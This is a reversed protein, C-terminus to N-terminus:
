KLTGKLYYIWNISSLEPDTCYVILKGTVAGANIGSEDKFGNMDQFKVMINATQKSNIVNSASSTAFLVTPDVIYKFTKVDLFVNKFPITLPHDPMLIFPGKPKPIIGNGTIEYITEPNLTSSVIFKAHVTEINCPEYIVEIMNGDRAPISIKNLGCTFSPNDVTITFEDVNKSNNKIIINFTKSSGLAATIQPLTYFLKEPMIALLKLKYPFIGLKQSKINLVTESESAISPSYHIIITEKSEPAISKPLGEIKIDPHQCTGSYIITENKLPNEIKLLYDLSEQTNTTLEITEISKPKIIKYQLKYFQYEGEPNTFIIHFNLLSGKYCCLFAHYDRLDKSLIEIKDNGDFTYIPKEKYNGILKISCVFHQPKNLWNYIPLIEHYKIKAPIERSIEGIAEPPLSIGRLAYITLSNKRVFKIVVTGEHPNIKTNMVLPAYTIACQTSSNADIFIINESQFYNGNVIIEIKEDANLDNKLNINKTQKSRVPISFVITDIPDPLKSCGGSFLITITQYNEIEISAEGKLKISEKTPHFYVNFTVNTGASLYGKLPKLTFHPGLKKVNWKFYADIDGSNNLILKDEISYGIAVTDFRLDTRNVYFEAAICRGRILLLPIITSDACFGGIKEDFFNMRKKPSFKIIIEQIKNPRLTLFESPEFNICDEFIVPINMSNSHSKIKEILGIQLKVSAKGFNIITFKRKVIKGISVNGFDIVKDQPKLLGVKYLIGEGKLQIEQDITSNIIFNLSEHYKKMEHPHFNIPISITSRESIAQSLKELNVSFHQPVKNCEVIVFTNENNTIRLEVSYQSSGSNENIYCAGFNYEIFNFKIPECKATANILLKYSPGNIIKLTIPYNKLELKKMATMELFSIIKSNNDVMGNTEKIEIKYNLKNNQFKTSIGSNWEYKFAIDGINIIEFKFITLKKLMLKGLQIINVKDAQIDIQENMPNTFIVRSNIKYVNAIILCKLPEKMKEIECQVLFSFHGIQSPKFDVLFEQDNESSLIGSMPKIHINQLRGESYVSNKNIKFSLPFKENNRITMTDQVKAGLSTLAMTVKPTCCIVRPESVIGVLLFPVELNYEHIFFSWLAEFVGVDRALFTFTIKTKEESHAIAEPIKCHFYPINNTNQSTKDIWSFHYSETTPNILDFHKIHNKRVGIVKFEVVKINEPVTPGSRTLLYDSKKIDFHYYPVVSSGNLYVVLSPVEPHLNKINCFLKARYFVANHPLFRVTFQKSHNSLLTGCTPEIEFSPEYKKNNMIEVSANTSYIMSELNEHRTYSENAEHILSNISCQISNNVPSASHYISSEVLEWSYILNVMGTNKLIFKQERIEYIFTDEFNIEDTSCAYISHSASAMLLIQIVRAPGVNEYRPEEITHVIKEMFIYESYEDDKNENSASFKIWDVRSHQDDWAVGEPKEMINIEFITCDLPVQDLLVPINSIFSVIIDKDDLPYIHGVSPIIILNSHTNWQFRFLKDKSKNAIKFTIKKEENLYCDGINLIYILNTFPNLLAENNTLIPVSASRNKQGLTGQMENENSIQQSHISEADKATEDHDNTSELLPLGILIVPEIFGEGNLNIMLSEYPNEAILLRVHAEYKGNNKPTFLLLLQTVDGPKSMTEICHRDIMKKTNSVDDISKLEYLCETDEIIETTITTRIKGINKFCINKISTKGVFCKGYELIAHGRKCFIEPEILIIEAVCGEGILNISLKDTEIHSPVDVTAELLGFYKELLTPAFSISLEETSLPLIHLNLKNLTFVHSQSNKQHLEDTQLFLLLDAPVLSPNNFRLKVTHITSVIVGEFHLDMAEKTFITFPTIESPCKFDKLCNVIHSDQFIFNLNNFDIKPIYSDMSFKLIRGNKDTISSNDVFILISDELHGEAEPYCDIIFEALQNVDLTGEHSQNLTFPGFRLFLRAIKPTSKKKRPSKRSKRSEKDDLLVNKNELQQTQIPSTQSNNKQKSTIEYQIPFIGTNKMYFSIQKHTFIRIPGILVEPYPEIEFRSYEARITVTLPIEAVVTPTKNTELLKCKFLPMEKLNMELKPIFTINIATTKNIKLLGFSRDVHFDEKLNKLLNRNIDCINEVNMLEIAFNIDHQGRNKITFSAKLNIGIKGNPFIIPNANNIDVTVDCTNGSVTISEILLPNGDIEDLFIGINILQEIPGVSQGHYCIEIDSESFAKVWDSYRSLTVQSDEFIKSLNKWFIPIASKNILKVIENVKRYLLVRGFSLNKRTLTVDLECGFCALTFEEIRPNNKITMLLRDTNIGYELAVATVQISGLENPKILLVQPTLNFAAYNSNALSFEVNVDVLSPNFFNLRSIIKQIKREDNNSKNTLLYGFDFTNENIFFVPRHLENKKTQKVNPFIMTPDMQLHPIDANGAVNIQYIKTNDGVINLLFKDTFSGVCTPKFAIQFTKIEKPQLIVRPQPLKEIYKKLRSLDPPNENLDSNELLEFPSKERSQYEYRQNNATIISYLQPEIVPEFTNNDNLLQKIMRNEMLQGIVMDYIESDWPNSFKVHWIHFRNNIIAEISKLSTKYINFAETLKELKESEFKIQKKNLIKPSEHKENSNNVKKIKENLEVAPDLKEIEYKKIFKTRREQAEHIRPRLVKEIFLCKENDPLLEFDSSSMEDMLELKMALEEEQKLIIKNQTETYKQKYLDLSNHFTVFAMFDARDIIRFISSFTTIDNKIFNNNLTQLVFGKRYQNSNFIEQLTIELFNLDIGLFTEEGRTIKKSTKLNKGVKKKMSKNKVTTAPSVAVSKTIINQLLRIGEIKYEYRCLSEMSNIEDISPFNKFCIIPDDPEPLNFYINKKFRQLESDDSGLSSPSKLSKKLPILPEFDNIFKKAIQLLEQYKNDIIERLQISNSSDGLAINEIIVRDLNVLSLNLLKAIRCATEQYQTFPAGHFFICVKKKLVNNENIINNHKAAFEDFIEKLPDNRLKLFEPIEHLKDIYSHLLDEIENPNKSKLSTLGDFLKYNLNDSYEEFSESKINTNSNNEHFESLNNEVIEEDIDSKLNLDAASVDNLQELQSKVTYESYQNSIIDESAIMEDILSYYFEYFAWPIRFGVDLSPLLIENVRYYHLLVRMIHNEEISVHDLHNWYFEIPCNINNKVNFKHVQAMSHPSMPSFNIALKDIKLKKVIGRGYLFIKKLEIAGDVIINLENEYDCSKEPRFYIDIMKSEGPLLSDQYNDLYFYLQSKKEDNPFQMIWQCKILGDNRIFLRLLKCNGVTVHGFNLTNNSLMLWPSTVNAIITIPITCGNIVEIYIIRKILKSRELFKKKLPHINIDLKFFEEPMLNVRNRLKVTIGYKTLYNEKENKRLRMSIKCSSYNFIMVSRNTCQEVIVHGLNLEYSPSCLLPIPMPNKSSIHISTLTECKSIHQVALYQEIIMDIDMIRPMSDDCNSIIEWGNNMLREFENKNEILSLDNNEHTNLLLKEAINLTNIANYEDEILYNKTSLIRPLSLYIQPLVAWGKITIVVPELNAIILNFSEDFQGPIRSQYNLELQAVAGSDISGEMPQISLVGKSNLRRESFINIKYNFEIGCINKIEVFDRHVEFIIQHGFHIQAKDLLYKINDARATINIYESPGHFINCILQANVCISEQAHFSISIEKTSHPSIIGNMPSIEFVQYLKEETFGSNTKLSETDNEVNNDDNMLKLSETSRQLTAPSSIKSIDRVSIGQTEWSFNYKVSMPGNNNLVLTKNCTDNTSVDFRLKEPISIINPYNMAAKCKIEDENPHEDYKFRLYDIYNKSHFNESDKINPTFCVRIRSIFNHKLNVIVNNVHEDNETIIKFPYQISLHIILNMQSINKVELEDIIKKDVSHESHTEMNIYFNMERKNFKVAPEIFTASINSMGILERKACGQSVCYVWWQESINDCKDSQVLWKIEKTTRPLLEIAHSEVKFTTMRPMQPISRSNRKTISNSFIIKQLRNGENILNLPVFNNQHSLLQGMQFDPFINPHIKICSGLGHASLIVSVTSGNAITILIEDFQEGADRLFLKVNIKMPKLPNIEGSITSISWSSNKNAIYANFNAPIPSDNILELSMFKEQLLEVDGFDLHKPAISIVPGHGNFVVTFTEFESKGFTRMYKMEIEQQGIVRTIITVSADCSQGPNLHWQNKSMSYFTMTNNSEKISLSTNAALTTNNPSIFFERPNSPFIPPASINNITNIFTKYAVAPEDGDDPICISFTVPVSSMNRISVEHKSTFGLAVTGLDLQSQDFHLTPCVVNGTEANDQNLFEVTEIFEGNKTSSFSLNFSSYEGSPIELIQPSISIKGGFDCSKEKPIIIGPILGENTCIIEFNQISSLYIKGIDIATTNLKLIPGKGIGFFKITLRTKCGTVQLYAESLIEGIKDPHFTVTIEMFSKPWIEGGMPSLIFKSDNYFFKETALSNVEDTRVRKYISDHYIPSDFLSTCELDNHHMITLDEIAGYIEIFKVFKNKEENDLTTNEHKMWHFKVIHDSNNYIKLSKVSSLGIFTDGMHLADTELHVSCNIANGHVNMKLLEGTECKFYIISTFSGTSSALFDIIFKQSEGQKILGCSPEILFHSSSSFVDFIATSDGSNRILISRSSSSNVPTEPMIINDPFELIARPGLVIIPITVTGFDGFLDIKHEYDQKEHPNFQLNYVHSMGPALRINLTTGKIDVCFTENHQCILKVFQSIKSTNSILLTTTYCNGPTFQQFIIEKPVVNLPFSNVVSTDLPQNINRIPITLLELRKYTSLLIQKKYESPYLAVINKTENDDGQGNRKREHLVYQYLINTIDYKKTFSGNIFRNFLNKTDM